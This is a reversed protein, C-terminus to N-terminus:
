DTRVGNAEPPNFYEHKVHRARSNERLPAAAWDPPAAAEAAKPPAGARRAPGAGGRRWKTERSPPHPPPPGTGGQQQQQQQRRRDQRAGRGPRRGRPSGSLTRHSYRLLSHPFPRPPCNLPRFPRPFPFPSPSHHGMAGWLCVPFSWRCRFRIFEYLLLSQFGSVRLTCLLDTCLFYTHLWIFYVCKMCGLFVVRPDASAPSWGCVDVIGCCTVSYTIFFWGFLFWGRGFHQWHVLLETKWNSRYLQSNQKASHPCRGSKSLTEPDRITPPCSAWIPAHGHDTLRWIWWAPTCNACTQPPAKALSFETSVAPWQTVCLFYTNRSIGRQILCSSPM